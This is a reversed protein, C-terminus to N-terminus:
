ELKRPKDGGLTLDTLDDRKLYLNLGIKAGLRPLRDLPTLTRTFTERLYRALTQEIDHM